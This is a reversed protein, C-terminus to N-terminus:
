NDKRLASPFKADYASLASHLSALSIFHVCPRSPVPHLIPHIARRRRATQRCSGLMLRLPCHGIRLMKLCLLRGKPHLYPMHRWIGDLPRGPPCPKTTIFRQLSLACCSFLRYFICGVLRLLRWFVRLPLVYGWFSTVYAAFPTSVSLALLVRDCFINCVHFLYPAFVLSSSASLALSSYGTV